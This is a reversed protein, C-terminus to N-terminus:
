RCNTSVVGIRRSGSQVANGGIMTESASSKAADTAVVTSLQRLVLPRAPHVSSGRREISSDIDQGAAEGEPEEPEERQEESIAIRM